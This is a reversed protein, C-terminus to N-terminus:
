IINLLELINQIEYTPIVDTANSDKEPNFWCSDIKSNNAGLIDTEIRDGIMLARPSRGNRKLLDFTYEFIRRDPKTFGCEESVVMLEIFHKIGSNALRQHQTVGIGNTIIVLPIKGHLTKLLESAGPILFVQAPLTELYDDCLKFPDAELKNVLLFKRFREVKLFDKSIFGKAHQSWLHNNIVKYSEHLAKIDGAIGHKELIIKFSIDESKAFDLLTDDADFLLVDYKM